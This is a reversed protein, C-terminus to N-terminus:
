KLYIGEFEDVMREIGFDKLAMKQANEGLRKRLIPDALLRLMASAIDEVSQHPVILCDLGDVFYDNAIGSRTFICPLQAAAAEIYVQGFGEVVSDIPCHVFIDFCHFLAAMDNEFEILRINKEPIGNLLQNIKLADPGRANALILIANPQSNLIKKFAPVIYQVGKWDIFRSAVGIITHGSPLKYKNKISLIQEASVHVFDNLRFGHNVVQVKEPDVGEENVLIEKVIRSIAVIKTSLKNNYRDLLVGKQSYKLHYNAHHRTHIRKQVGALIAASLGALTADLFHCHVIDTRWNKLLQQIQWIVRPLDSKGSYKLSFVTYKKERLYNEFYGPKTNLVIFQVAYERRVLEEAIWEFQAWRDINSIVYTLRPKLNM